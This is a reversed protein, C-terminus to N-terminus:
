DGPHEAVRKVACHVKAWWGDAPEAVVTCPDAAVPGAGAAAGTTASQQKDTAATAPRTDIRPSQQASRDGRTTQLGAARPSLMVMTSLRNLVKAVPVSPLNIKEGTAFLDWYRLM